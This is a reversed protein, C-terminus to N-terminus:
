KTLYNTQRQNFKDKRSDIIADFADRTLETDIHEFDHQRALCFAVSRDTEVFGLKQQIALSGMNFHFVGSLVRDAGTITFYWSLAAILADTMIGRNWFPRGLWYSITAEGDAHHFSVMGVFGHQRHTIAFNTADTREALETLWATADALRYTAPINALNGAVDFASLYEAMRAADGLEPERLNLDGSQLPLAIHASDSRLLNYTM